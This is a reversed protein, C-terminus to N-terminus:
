TKQSYSGLLPRYLMDQKTFIIYIHKNQNDLWNNTSFKTLFFIVLNGHGNQYNELNQVLMTIQDFDLFELNYFQTDQQSKM